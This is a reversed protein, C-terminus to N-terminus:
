ARCRGAARLRSWCRPRKAPSTRAPAPAWCSPSITGAAPLTVAWWGRPPPRRWCGTWCRGRGTFERRLYVFALHAGVAYSAIVIGEILRHPDSELLTRDKFTGPEGEDANIVVYKTVAPDKPIFKWKRGTAFGAGGRGRLGSKDVEDIVAEPSMSLARRLGAYGGRATYAELEGQDPEHLYKLLVPEGSSSQQAEPKPSQQVVPSRAEPGASRYRSLIEGISEPTVLGFRETGVMVAPAAECAALCEATKLTFAGDPTTEGVEVGLQRRLQDLIRGCGNLMCAINTCVQVLHRGVPRFFLLHYFSAVSAVESVPLDMVAALDALADATLYGAEDQAVFLAGLLASQRHPFQAMLRRIEVKANESLGNESM